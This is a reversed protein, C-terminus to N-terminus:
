QEPNELGYPPPSLQLKTRHASELFLAGTEAIDIQSVVLAEWGGSPSPTADVIKGAGQASTNQPSFLADGPSPTHGTEFRALYMRRKLQGLYKMRAVVEQGTYCGKTFSIGSLLDLNLMQPVFAEATADYVSPIGGRIDQLHWWLSQVPTAETATEAFRNIDRVNGIIQVRPIPGPHRILSLDDTTRCQFPEAPVEGLLSHICNGGLAVAALEETADELTVQARLVFMRLRKLVAQTREAPLQLYLDDGLQFILMLALVRGKPTCWASLQAQTPDVRTIDNTFQGQLFDRTDKGRVRIFGKWSPITLACDAETPAQELQLTNLFTDKSM